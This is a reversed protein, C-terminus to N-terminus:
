DNSGCGGGELERIKNILDWYKIGTKTIEGKALWWSNHLQMIYKTKVCALNEVADNLKDGDLHLIVCGEPIAGYHEEWVIHSRRKFLARGGKRTKRALDVSKLSDYVKVLAYGSTDRVVTGVDKRNHPVYDEGRKIGSRYLRNWLTQISTGFRKNFEETLKPVPMKPFNEAIWDDEEVTYKHRDRYNDGGHRIYAENLAKPTCKRGTRTCFADTVTKWDCTDRMVSIFAIDEDTFKYHEYKTLKLSQCKNVLSKDTVNTGFTENFADTLKDYPMTYNERLFGVEEKTFKHPHKETGYASARKYRIADKSLNTKFRENFARAREAWTGDPLNELWEVMEPTWNSM